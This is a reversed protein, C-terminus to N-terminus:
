LTGKSLSVLVSAVFTSLNELAGSVLSLEASLDAPSLNNSNQTDDTQVTNNVFPFGSFDPRYENGFPFKAATSLLSNLVLGLESPDQLTGDALLSELAALDIEPQMMQGSCLQGLLALSLGLLLVQARDM